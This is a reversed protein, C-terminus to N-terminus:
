FVHVFNEEYFDPCRKNRSLFTRHFGPLDKFGVVTSVVSLTYNTSTVSLLKTNGSHPFHRGACSGPYTMVKAPQHRRQGDELCQASWMKLDWSSLSRTASSTVPLALVSNETFMLAIWAAKNQPLSKQASSPQLILHSLEM